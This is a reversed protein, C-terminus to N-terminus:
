RLFRRVKRFYHSELLPLNIARIQAMLRTIADKIEQEFESRAIRFISTIQVQADKLLSPTTCILGTCSGEEAKLKSLSLQDAHAEFVFWTWSNEIYKLAVYTHADLAALVDVLLNFHTLILESYIRKASLPLGDSPYPIWEHGDVRMTFPGYIEHFEKDFTKVDMARLEEIDDEFIEFRIEFKSEQM